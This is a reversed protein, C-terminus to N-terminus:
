SFLLRLLRFSAQQMVQFKQFFGMLQMEMLKPLDMAQFITANNGPVLEAEGGIRMEVVTALLHAIAQAGTWSPVGINVKEGALVPSVCLSLTAAITFSKITTKM